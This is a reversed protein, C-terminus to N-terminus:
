DGVTFRKLTHLARDGAIGDSGAIIAGLDGAQREHKPKKALMPDYVPGCTKPANSMDGLQLMVLTRVYDRRRTGAYLAAEVTAPM